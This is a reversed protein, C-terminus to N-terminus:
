LGASSIGTITVAPTTIGTVTVVYKRSSSAALSTNGSLTVGTGGVLTCAFAVTNVITLEYGVGIQANPMQALIATATDTTDTYAATPGSRLINGAQMEAATLTGNGATTNTAPSKFGATLANFSVWPTAQATHLFEVNQDAVYMRWGVKPVIFEWAATTAGSTTAWWRAIQNDKGAWAGTGGVGVIYADGDAPTAPPTVVTQSKVIGAAFLDLFRLAQNIQGTWYGEGDAFGSFLGLNQQAVASNSM